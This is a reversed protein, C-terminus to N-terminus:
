GQDLAEQQWTFSDMLEPLSCPMMDRLVILLANIEAAVTNVVDDPERDGLEVNPGVDGALYNFRERVRTTVHGVMAWPDCADLDDLMQNAHDSLKM